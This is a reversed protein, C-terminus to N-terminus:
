TAANETTRLSAYRLTCFARAYAHFDIVVMPLRRDRKLILLNRGVWAERDQLRCFFVRRLKDGGPM